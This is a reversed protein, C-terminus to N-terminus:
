HIEDEPIDIFPDIIYECDPSDSSLSDAKLEDHLERCLSTLLNFVHTLSDLEQCSLEIIETALDTPTEQKDSIQPTHANKRM